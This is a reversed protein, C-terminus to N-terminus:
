GFLGSVAITVRWVKGNRFAFDTGTRRPAMGHQCAQPSSSADCTMGQISRVAPVSSGVGAGSATRYRPSTTVVFVAQEHVPDLKTHSAYGVLLAAKPYRVEVWHEGANKKITLGRGLNREIAARSELISVAGISHDLVIRSTPLPDLTLCTGGHVPEHCSTAFHRLAVSTYSIHNLSGSGSALPVTIAAAVGCAIVGSMIWRKV